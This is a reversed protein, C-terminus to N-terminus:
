YHIAGRTGGGVAIADGTIAVSRPSALFAVVDAVEAATVLRGLSTAAALRAEIEGPSTGARAARDLLMPTTRETVTTGPHVVTVNIGAPGLEDALNKTLAAVAVNRVSGALSGTLRANLGSINIIRGFGQAAMLPAVARACRLYGLVKTELEARLADDTLGSLPPVPVSSAPRAAANVLVDVGGFVGAVEAVMARVDDDDTTDAPRTLVRTGHRGVREAAATLTEPGRAVM